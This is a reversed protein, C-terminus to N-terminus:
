RGVYNKDIWQRYAGSQVSSIWADNELYWQVTEKLGQEFQYKPKWGLETRIKTSNIAYRFDHGLRDGVFTILSAYKKQTHPVFEDLHECITQVVELNSREANGGIAYTESLKGKELVAHIAACHDDVHLWDRINAGNGYVPLDKQAHANLIMLPILKEPFQRPGYNNSCNTILTPFGYTEYYARVFHDSSAKSAAYPSNPLYSSKETFPAEDLSLTGYVEDTSVHLFRFADQKEKNLNKWWTKFTHLLTCTGLINTHIFADPDIISRDVHSEAAFNVVGDFTYTDCLKQLLKEDGIDGQIFIHENDDKLSVLNDLNGSYTLKDLNIIRHGLKRAMLVYASGIFGAGGTVLLTKM